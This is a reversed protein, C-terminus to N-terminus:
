FVRARLGAWTHSTREMWGGRGRGQLRSVAASPGKVTDPSKAVWTHVGMAGGTPTRPTATAAAGAAGASMSGGRGGATITGLRGVESPAWVPPDGDGGRAWALGIGAGMRM